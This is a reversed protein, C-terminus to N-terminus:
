STWSSKAEVFLRASRSWRSFKPEFGDLLARRDVLLYGQPEGGVVNMSWDASWPALTEAVTRRRVFPVLDGQHHHQLAAATRRLRRSISRSAPSCILRLEAM